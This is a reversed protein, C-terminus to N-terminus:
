DYTVDAKLINQFDVDFSMTSDNDITDKLTEKTYPGFVSGDVYYVMYYNGNKLKLCVVDSNYKFETIRYDDNEIKVVEDNKYLKVTNDIGKISYGDYLDLHFNLFKNECGVIFLLSLITFLCLLKNGYTM